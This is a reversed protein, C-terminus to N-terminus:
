NRERAARLVRTRLLVCAATSLAAYVLASGVAVGTPGASVATLAYVAIAVWLVLKWPIERSDTRSRDDDGPPLPASSM